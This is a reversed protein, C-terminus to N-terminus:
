NNVKIVNNKIIETLQMKSLKGDALEWILNEYEDNNMNLNKDIENLLYEGVVAAVRKNGDNFAHNMCLGFIIACIIEIDDEYYGQQPSLIASELLNKNKIGPLGGFEEILKAHIDIVQEIDISFM